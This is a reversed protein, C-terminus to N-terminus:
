VYIHIWKFNSYNPRRLFLLALRVAMPFLGFQFVFAVISRRRLRMLPELARIGNTSKWEHSTRGKEYEGISCRCNLVFKGMFYNRRSSVRCNLFKCRFLEKARRLGAWLNCAFCNTQKSLEFKKKHRLWDYRIQCTWKKNTRTNQQKLVTM